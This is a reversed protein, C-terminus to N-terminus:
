GLGLIARYAADSCALAADRDVRALVASAARVGGRPIGDFPRKEEAVYSKRRFHGGFRAVAGTV